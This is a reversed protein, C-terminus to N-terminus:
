GPNYILEITDAGLSDNADRIARDLTGQGFGNVSTVTFDAAHAFRVDLLLSAAMLAAVLYGLVM